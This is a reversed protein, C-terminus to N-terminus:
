KKRRKKPLLKSAKNAVTNASIGLRKGVFDFATAQSGGGGRSRRYGQGEAFRLQTRISEDSTRAARSRDRWWDLVAACAKTSPREGFQPHRLCEIAWNLAQLLVQDTESLGMARATEQLELSSSKRNVLIRKARVRSM